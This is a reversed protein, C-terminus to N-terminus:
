SIHSENENLSCNFHHDINNSGVCHQDLVYYMKSPKIICQFLEEQM